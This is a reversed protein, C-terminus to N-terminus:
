GGGAAPTAMAAVAPATTAPPARVHSRSFVGPQQQVPVALSASAGSPPSASVRGGPQAAPQQRQHAQHEAAPRAPLFPPLAFRHAPRLACRLDVWHELESGGVAAAQDAAVIGTGCLDGSGRQRRAAGDGARVEAAREVISKRKLTSVNHAIEACYKRNHMLLLELDKVNAVVFKLFGAYFAFLRSAPCPASAPVHSPLPLPLPAAATCSLVLPPPAPCGAAASCRRSRSAAARRRPTAARPAARCCPSSVAAERCVVAPEVAQRWQGGGSGAALRTTAFGLRRSSSGFQLRQQQRVAPVSSGRAMAWAQGRLAGKSGSSKDATAM